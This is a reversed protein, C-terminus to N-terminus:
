RRMFSSWSLVGVTRRGIREMKEIREPCGSLPSRLCLEEEIQSRDREPDVSGGPRPVSPDDFARLVLVLLPRARLASLGQRGDRAGGVRPFPLGSGRSRRVATKQSPHQDLRDLRPDAFFIHGCLL